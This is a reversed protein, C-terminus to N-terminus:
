VIKHLIERDYETRTEIIVVIILVVALRDTVATLFASIVSIFLVVSGAKIVVEDHFSIIGM